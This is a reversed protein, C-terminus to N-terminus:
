NSSAYKIDDRFITSRLEVVLSVRTISNLNKNLCAVVVVLYFLHLQGRPNAEGNDSLFGWSFKSALCTSFSFTVTGGTDPGLSWTNKGIVGDISVSCRAQNLWSQSLSWVSLELCNWHLWQVKCSQGKHITWRTSEKSPEIQVFKSWITWVIKSTHKTTTTEPTIGKSIAIESAWDINWEALSLSAWSMKVVFWICVTAIWLRATAKVFIKEKVLSHKSGVEIFRLYYIEFKEGSSYFKRIEFFDKIIHNLM